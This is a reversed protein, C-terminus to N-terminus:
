DPVYKGVPDDLTLKGQEQLMLVAAATFQKSISGISYRMDATAATPPNLRAKGYAHAYVLKGGKVVAVSASPVGTQDLVGNAIRDIRGRLDADITDVVQAAGAMTATMTMLAAMWGMRIKLHMRTM